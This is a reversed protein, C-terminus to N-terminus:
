IVKRFSIRSRVNNIWVAPWRLRPSRDSLSSCLRAFFFLSHQLLKPHPSPDDPNPKQGQYILHSSDICNQFCFSWIAFVGMEDGESSSACPRVVVFLSLLSHPTSLPPWSIIYKNHNSLIMGPHKQKCWLDFLDHNPLISYAEGYVTMWFWNKKM